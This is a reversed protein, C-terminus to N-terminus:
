GAPSIAQMRPSYGAASPIKLSAKFVARWNFSRKLRPM